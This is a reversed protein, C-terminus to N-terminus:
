FEKEKKEVLHIYLKLGKKEARSIMDATGRSKGDWIAILADSYDAMSQNRLFGARKGNVEWNAPYPAVPVNNNYAWVIGLTDVGKACGSVVEKIEFKSEEIAKQVTEMDTVTRSGAIIVKM